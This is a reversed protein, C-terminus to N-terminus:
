NRSSSRQPTTMSALQCPPDTPYLVGRTTEAHMVNIGGHQACTSSPQSGVGSSTAAPTWAHHWPQRQCFARAALPPELSRDMVRQAVAMRGPGAVHLLLRVRGIAQKAQLVRGRAPAIDPGRSAPMCFPLTEASLRGTPARHGGVALQWHCYWGVPATHPRWETMGATCRSGAWGHTHRPCAHM